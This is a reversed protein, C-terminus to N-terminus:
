WALNAKPEENYFPGLAMTMNTTCTPTDKPCGLIARLGNDYKNHMNSHGQQTM